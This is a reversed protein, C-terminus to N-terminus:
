DSSSFPREGEGKEVEDKGKVGGGEGGAKCTSFSKAPGQCAPSKRPLIRVKKPGRGGLKEVKGGGAV